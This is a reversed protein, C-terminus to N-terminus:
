EKEEDAFSVKGVLQKRSSRFKCITFAEETGKRLRGKDTRQERRKRKGM